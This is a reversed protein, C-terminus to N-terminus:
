LEIASQLQRLRNLSRTFNHGIDRLRGAVPVLMPEPTMAPSKQNDPENPALVGSLRNELAEVMKDLDNALTELRLTQEEVHTQRAECSTALQNSIM